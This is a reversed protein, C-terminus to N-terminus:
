RRTQWQQLRLAGTLFKRPVGACTHPLPQPPAAAANNDITRAWGPRWCCALLAENAKHRLRNLTWRLFRKLGCLLAHDVVYKPEYLWEKALKSGWCM